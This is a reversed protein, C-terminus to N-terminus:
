KATEYSGNEGSGFAPNQVLNTNAKMEDIHYPWYIADMQALFSQVVSANQSGKASVQQRLYSTNGERESRRVLDFWRKGEFMLEREREEYVLNNLLAKTTYQEANLANNPYNYLSRNNVASILEFARAALDADAESLTGGTEGEGTDANDSMMQVLAEAKMLMIDSLRYIIWNAKCYTTWNDNNGKGSYVSIGMHGQFNNSAPDGLWNFLSPCVYKYIAAMSGQSLFNEHARMDYRTTYVKNEGNKIDFAVYDSPAVYGPLAHADGYFFGVPGNSKMNVEGKLFSLEFISEDSNGNCFIEEFAYGFQNGMNNCDEVLPYDGFRPSESLGTGNERAKMEALRKKSAIVEDAYKVCNAYDKKWLYMECLMADIFDRTVRGTQYKSNITTTSPYRWVADGRVNELDTILSDLVTSFPTAPLNMTQNDDIFAETSYPVARFARILYFYCLDRLASVEAITAKLESEAYGPDTAAVQPAYRIVINCNNIISYFDGYSTYANSADINEKLVRMLSVDRKETDTGAIVNESRFEGWIMMRSIVAYDQLQSYCGAVVNEVDSKENWFQEQIIENKPDLELFDACSIMFSSLALLALPLTKRAWRTQRNDNNHKIDM